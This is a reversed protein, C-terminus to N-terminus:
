FDFDVVVRESVPMAQCTLIFGEEVEEPELAYNVLMDVEGELVKAKCTCCVGGKCAFPLDAANAIAADLLNDGGFPLKFDFTKGGERITVDCVKGTKQYAAKRKEAEKNDGTSFLEFHVNDKGFGKATVYDKVLFIMQEPGCLFIDNIDELNLLKDFIVDLKETTIRGNFLPIERSQKTLFHYIKVRELFQNKLGELEDKLIVTNANQNIYLLTFTSNPEKLLHTKLISYIPTIGSGAAIGLYNKQTEPEINKFFKGNPPMVEVTDGVELVQTAYTSFKGDEIRKIGVKLEEDLPSSCISYSRRVEEGNIEAKLTLYQGQIFEFTESLTEPVDFSIISCSQTTRHIDKIKLSHFRNEM